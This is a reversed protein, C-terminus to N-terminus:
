NSSDVVNLQDVRNFPKRAQKMIPMKSEKRPDNANNKFPPM